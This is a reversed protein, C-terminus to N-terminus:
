FVLLAMLLNQYEKLTLGLQTAHSSNGTVLLLILMIIIFIMLCLVSVVFNKKKSEGTKSTSMDSKSNNVVTCGTEQSTVPTIVERSLRTIITNSTTVISFNCSKVVNIDLINTCLSFNNMTKNCLYYLFLKYDMIPNSEYMEQSGIKKSEINPRVSETKSILSSFDTMIVEQYTRKWIPQMISVYINWLYDYSIMANEEPQTIDVIVGIFAYILRGKDDYFMDKAIQKQGETLNCHSSINKLFGIVGAIRYRGNDAILWREGKLADISATAELVIKRAWKVDSDLFINPRVRFESNFDCSYTRTHIIPAVIM